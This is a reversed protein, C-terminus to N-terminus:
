QKRKSIWLDLLGKGGPRNSAFVFSGDPLIAPDTENYETNLWDLPEPEGWVGAQLVVMFLDFGGKGGYGNSAYVLTDASIFFPTVEDGESNVRSSLLVPADWEEDRRRDCVWLDLGGAGGERDSVFVLRTGDLSLAPQADFGNRHIQAIPHGLNVADADTPATVITPWAQAEHRTFAVGVAEGDKGFSIFSRWHGDANFTGPVASVDPSSNPAVINEPFRAQWLEAYGNRESTFVMRNMNTQWVPAYDDHDSNVEALIVPAAYGDYFNTRSSLAQAFSTIPIAFMTIMIMVMAVPLATAAYWVRPQRVSTTLVSNVTYCNTSHM